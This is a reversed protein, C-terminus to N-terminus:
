LSQSFTKQRSALEVMKDAMIGYGRGVEPRQSSFIVAYYPPEPTKAIGSM